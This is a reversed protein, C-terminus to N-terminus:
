SDTEQGKLTNLKQIMEFGRKNSDDKIFTLKPTTRIHLKQSVQSQIFGAARNLGAIGADLIKEEEFSSIFLKAYVLDRSLAVRNITLFPTVRPDKIKQSVILASVEMRLLKEIKSLRFEAM